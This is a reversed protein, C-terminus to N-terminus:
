LIKDKAISKQYGDNRVLHENLKVLEPNEGLFQLIDQMNFQQNQVYLTEYISSVFAFDEPNDVTWRFASLDETHKVTLLTFIEPHKHIFPTVHERESVLRANIWTHELAAMNFIEVDLGDPYSPELANSAYDVSAKFYEDIVHDIVASDALPCDGTLRVIHQANYKLAARYFRDLVDNLDGRYCDIGNILCLNALSDDDSFNSTAVVIKSLRKSQQLREIQHLLMPKGLIPLLVKGPLRTSSCRAQLIGILEM